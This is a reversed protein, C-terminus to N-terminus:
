AAHILLICIVTIEIEQMESAAKEKNIQIEPRINHGKLIEMAVHMLM